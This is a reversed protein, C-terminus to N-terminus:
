ASHEHLAKIVLDRQVSAPFRKFIAVDFPPDLDVNGCWELLKEPPYECWDCVPGHRESVEYTVAVPTPRSGRWRYLWCIACAIREAATLETSNM